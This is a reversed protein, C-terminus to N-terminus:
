GEGLAAGHRVPPAARPDLTYSLGFLVPGLALLVWVTATSQASIFFAATLLGVGAIFAGLSVLALRDRGIREFRRAARIASALATWAYALFLGLGIVGTDALMQLYTNHVEHPREVVLEVYSLSGPRRVYEGSRITFNDLGVGTLPHDASM